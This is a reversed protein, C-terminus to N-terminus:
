TFKLTIADGGSEGGAATTATPAAESGAPAGGQAATTSGQGSDGSGGCGALSSMVMGMSLLLAITRKKM